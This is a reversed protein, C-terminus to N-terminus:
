DVGEEGFKAATVWGDGQQNSRQLCDICLELIRM